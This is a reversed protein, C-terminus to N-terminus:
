FEECLIVTDGEEIQCSEWQIETSRQLVAQGAPVCGAICILWAPDNYVRFVVVGKEVTYSKLSLLEMWSIQRLGWGKQQLVTMTLKESCRDSLIERHYVGRRLINSFVVLPDIEFALNGVFWCCFVNCFPSPGLVDPELTIVMGGHLRRIDADGKDTCSIRSRRRGPVSGALNATRIFGTAPDRALM